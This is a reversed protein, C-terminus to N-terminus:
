ALYRVEYRDTTSPQAGFTVTSTGASTTLQYQDLSSPSSQTQEILLGNRFVMVGAEFGSPVEESLAYAVTAAQINLIDVQPAFSVKAPTVSANAIQTSGIGGDAVKLGNSGVALTSGDLDITLDSVAASGNYATMSLGNGASLNNLNGGLAVGSITRNALKANSIASNAIYIGDADKTLSGGSESKLKLDLKGSSFQMGPNTALDVSIVDPDGSADIAIGDGGQFTDPVQADVYAKIAAASALKSSGGSLSTEIDSPNIKAYSVAGDLLKDVNIISDVLQNRVLQIAM